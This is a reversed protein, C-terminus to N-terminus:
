IGVVWAELRVQFQGGFVADLRGFQQRGAVAFDQGGELPGPMSEAGFLDAFDQAEAGLWPM